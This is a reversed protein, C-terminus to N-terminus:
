LELLLIRLLFRALCSQASSNLEPTLPKFVNQKGTFVKM